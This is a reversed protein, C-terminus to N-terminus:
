QGGGRQRRAGPRHDAPHRFRRRRYDGDGDRERGRRHHRHGPGREPQVGAPRQGAIAITGTGIETTGHRAALAITERPEVETDDLATITASGATAGAALTISAPMITYDDTAATSGTFDLSITQPDAFTVGGTTVTVTASGGEAIAGTAPDVSLSFAPQDSASIAVNRSGILTAGITAMITITEENEVESDDLAHVTTAGATAAAAITISRSTITYDTGATADGSVRLDIARPTAFTVGGTTVTVTASEGEAITATAPDVTLSFATRDNASSPSTGPASRRLAM